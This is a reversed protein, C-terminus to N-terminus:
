RAVPNMCCVLVHKRKQLNCYEQSTQFLVEGLCLKAIKIGASDAIGLVPEPIGWAINMRCRANGLPIYNSFIDLKLGTRTVNNEKTPMKGCSSNNEVSAAHKGLPRFKIHYPQCIM